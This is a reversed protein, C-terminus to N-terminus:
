QGLVPTFSPSLQSTTSATQPTQPAQSVVPVSTPTPTPAGIPTFTPVAESSSSQNEYLPDINERTKLGQVVTPDFEPDIPNLQTQIDNSVTSTAWIHYLNFGVWAVVVIFSSILIFLIDKQKNRKKPKM